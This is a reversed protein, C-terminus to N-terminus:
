QWKHFLWDEFVEDYLTLHGDETSISDTLYEDETYGARDKGTVPDYGYMDYGDEDVPQGDVYDVMPKNVRTPSYKGVSM